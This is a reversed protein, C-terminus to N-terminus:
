TIENPQEAQTLRIKGTVPAHDSCYQVGIDAELLRHDLTTSTLLFDIRSFSNFRSSFFSYDRVNPNLFRWMDTLDYKEFLKVLDSKKTSSQAGSRLCRTISPRSRDQNVDAVWNLDGGIVLPGDRFNSLELLVNELFQLQQMNPAYISALTYPCGELLGKLFLYRGDSDSKIDSIQFRLSNSLLIAVGRAKSSGPAQFQRSFKKTKLVSIESSKLDQLFVVEPNQKAIFASLRKRKIVNNLGHVNLSFIHLTRSSM